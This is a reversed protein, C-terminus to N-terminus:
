TNWRKCTATMRTAPTGAAAALFFPPTVRPSGLLLASGLGAAPAFCAGTASESESSSWMCGIVPVDQKLSRTNFFTKVGFWLCGIVCHHWRGKPNKLPITELWLKAVIIGFIDTNTPMQSGGNGASHLCLCGIVHMERAKDKSQLAQVQRQKKPILNPYISPLIKFTFFTRKM